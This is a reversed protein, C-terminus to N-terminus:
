PSHRSEHSGRTDTAASDVLLGERMAVGQNGGLSSECGPRGIYGIPDTAVIDKVYISARCGRARKDVIVTSLDTSSDATARNLCRFKSYNNVQDFFLCTAKRKYILLNCCAYSSRQTCHATPVGKHSARVGTHILKPSFVQRYIM